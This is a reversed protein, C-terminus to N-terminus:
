VRARASIRPLPSIPWIRSCNPSGLSLTYRGPIEYCDQPCRDDAGVSPGSFPRHGTVMEYLIVGLSFIDSRADLREGRAQEPSMYATTGIPVGTETLNLQTEPEEASRADAIRALGFDMVRAHGRSDLMVNAPKLDRHLIGHTHATSVADALQVGIDLVGDIKLPGSAIRAALTEGEIFPMVIFPGHEDEGVEHIGCINPHDLRGAARAETLLRQRFTADSGLDARIRKIAVRRQLRTDEAVYVEGM